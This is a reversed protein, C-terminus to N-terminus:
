SMQNFALTMALVVLPPNDVKLTLAKASGIGHIRVMDAFLDIGTITAFPMEVQRNSDTFSLRRSTVVVSGTSLRRAAPSPTNLGKFAALDFELPFHVRVGGGSPLEMLDASGSHFLREEDNVLLPTLAPTNQEPHSLLRSCALIGEIQGASLAIEDQSLGLVEQAQMVLRRQDPKLEFAEARGSNRRM